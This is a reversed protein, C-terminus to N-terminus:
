SGGPGILGPSPQQVQPSLLQSRSALSAIWTLAAEKVPPYWEPISRAIRDLATERVDSPLKALFRGALQAPRNEKADQSPPSGRQLLTVILNDVTGTMLEPGTVADQEWAALYQDYPYLPQGQASSPEQLIFDGTLTEQRGALMEMFSATAERGILGYGITLLLREPMGQEYLSAFYTLSRPSAVLKSSVEHPLQFDGLDTTSAIEDPRRLVFDVIDKHIGAGQAWGAWVPAEWGPNYHLMRDIMAEDIENVMYGVEAPNAACVIQWGPPIEWNSQSITGEGLPEMLGALVEENARNIEDIFWVGGNGSGEEKPLWDPLAYITRNPDDPDPIPTGVISQGNVDHAPHYVRMELQNQECFNKIQSTNHTVMGAAIYNHTDDVEFDYVWEDLKTEEVSKVKVWALDESARFFMQQAKDTFAAHADKNRYLAALRNNSVVAWSDKVSVPEVVLSKDIIAQCNKLFPQLAKRSATKRGTLMKCDMLARSPLEHDSRIDSILDLYPIGETNTNAPIEALKQLRANKKEDAIGIYRALLRLSEGRIMGRHYDRMIKLGNTACQRRAHVRLQIGFRRLMLQVQKIITESAMTMEFGDKRIHAEAAFFERLFLRITQDDASVIWEPIKKQSSLSGWKYGNDVLWDRYTSSNIRLYPTRVEPVIVTPTNIRIGESESWCTIKTRIAELVSVDKQAIKLCGNMEEHGESIQWALLTVLDPDVAKGEWRISRPVAVHDGVAIERQWGSTGRLRHARTMTIKSGDDTTVTRGVEDVKQRYIREVPRQEIHGQETISPVLVPKPLQMWYGEGDYEVPAGSAEGQEWIQQIQRLAGDVVVDTNGRVCKGSGRSGWILVPICRGDPLPHSRVWHLLESITVYEGEKGYFRQMGPSAM